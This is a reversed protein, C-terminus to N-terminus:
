LVDEDDRLQASKKRKDLIAKMVRIKLYGIAISAVVILAWMWWWTYWPGNM